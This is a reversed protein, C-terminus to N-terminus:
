DTRGPPVVFDVRISTSSPGGAGDIRAEVSYADLEVAVGSRRLAAAGEAAGATIGAIIAQLTENM